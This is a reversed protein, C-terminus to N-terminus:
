KLVAGIFFISPYARCQIKNNKDEWYYYYDKFAPIDWRLIFPQSYNGLSESLTQFINGFYDKKNINFYDYDIQFNKLYNKCEEESNLSKRVYVPAIIMIIKITDDWNISKVQNSAEKIKRKLEERINEKDVLAKYSIWVFKAEILIEMDKHLILYDVRGHGKIKKRKNKIREIPYEALVISTDSSQKLSMFFVPSLVMEKYVFPYDYGNRLYPMTEKAFNSVTDLLFERLNKSFEGDFEDYLWVYGNKGLNRDKEM